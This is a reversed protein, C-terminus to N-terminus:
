RLGGGDHRRNAHGEGVAANRDARRCHAFCRDAIRIGQELEPGDHHGRTLGVLAVGLILIAVMTRRAFFRRQPPPTENANWHSSKCVRPSQTSACPCASATATAFNLRADTPRATRISILPMPRRGNPHVRQREKLKMPKPSAFLFALTWPAQAAPFIRPRPIFEDGRAHKEVAYRGTARDIRVRLLRNLSIARSSAVSFVSILQRSSSRLLADQFTGGMEAVIVGSLIAIIVVVVILEILTFARHRLQVPPTAAMNGTALKRAPIAAAAVLPRLRLRSSDWSHPISLSKGVPRPPASSTHGAGNTNTGPRRTTLVKLGEESSPYRDM